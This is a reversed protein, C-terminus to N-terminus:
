LGQAGVHLNWNPIAPYKVFRLHAMFELNMGSWAVSADFISVEWGAVCQVSFPLGRPTCVCKCLLCKRQWQRWRRAIFNQIFQAGDVERAQRIALMCRYRHMCASEAAHVGSARARELARLATCRWARSVWVVACDPAGCMRGQRLFLGTAQWGVSRGVGATGDGVDAGRGADAGEGTEVDRENASRM